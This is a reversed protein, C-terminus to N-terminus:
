ETSFGQNCVLEPRLRTYTTAWLRVSDPSTASRHRNFIERLRAGMSEVTNTTSPMRLSPQALHARYLDISRIFDRTASQIRRTFTPNGAFANLRAIIRDLPETPNPHLAQDVAAHLANRATGGRLSHALMGRRGYFKMLLHFQCLQLIWGRQRALRQFGSFNDVTVGVIRRQLHAPITSIARNWNTASEKGELLVPDLFVAKDCATPKLAIQYLVWPKYDFRFWLGDLLLILPGEPLQVRRPQSVFDRMLRRFHYRVTIQKIRPLQKAFHRLSYGELFM